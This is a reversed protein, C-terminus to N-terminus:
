PHPDAQVTCQRFNPGTRYAFLCAEHKDGTPDLFLLTSNTLPKELDFCILFQALLALATSKSDVFQSLGELTPDTYHNLWTVAQQTIYSPIEFRLYPRLISLNRIRTSYNLEEDTIVIFNYGKEALFQHALQLRELIDPKFLKALPKVEVYWIEGNFFTLQFDPTYECMRDQYQFCLTEPQERFAVVAPSYEFHYCAKQELQSEWAIMRKMKTSSFQGRVQGRSRTVPERAREAKPQPSVDLRLTAGCKGTSYLNMNKGKQFDVPASTFLVTPIEGGGTARGYLPIAYTVELFREAYDKGVNVQYEIISFFDIKWTL